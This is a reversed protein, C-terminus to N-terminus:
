FGRMNGKSFTKAATIEQVSKVTGGPQSINAGAGLKITGEQIKGLTSVANKYREKVGEPMDLRQRRSYLLYIALHGCFTNILGPVPSLPLSYLGRLYGDIMEGADSIAKDINVENISVPPVNDDSLQILDNEPTIKKLDDLSCYM